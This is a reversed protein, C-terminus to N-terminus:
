NVRFMFSLNISHLANDFRYAGQKGTTLYDWRYSLGIRNDNRLNLYFGLETSAGPFFKAFTDYDELLDDENITPNGIYAFGPRSVVGVLPLSLKGFATLWHHTKDRNFAFNYDVMGVACLNAFVSVSSAANMLGPIEKMDIFTQMSGGAWFSWRNIRSCHYLFETSVDIDLATGSLTTFDTYFGRGEAQMHWRGWEVTVGAAVNAGLGKYRFPVTGKDFCQAYNAGASLNLWVPVRNGLRNYLQSKQSQYEEAVVPTQATGKTVSAMLALLFLAILSTRKM